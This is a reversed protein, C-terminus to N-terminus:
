QVLEKEEIHTLNQDYEHAQNRSKKSGNVHNCLIQPPINFVEAAVYYTYQNDKM